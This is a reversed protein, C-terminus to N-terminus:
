HLVWHNGVILLPRTLSMHGQITIRVGILAAVGRHFLVPVHRALPRVGLLGILQLPLLLLTWIVFAIVVAVVRVRGVLTM